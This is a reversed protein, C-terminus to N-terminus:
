QRLSVQKTSNTGATGIRVRVSEGPERNLLATVQQGDITYIVRWAQQQVMRPRECGVDWALLARLDLPRAAFCWDPRVDTQKQITVPESSLVPAEYVFGPEAWAMLPLCTVLLGPLILCFGACHKM